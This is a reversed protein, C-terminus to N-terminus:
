SCLVAGSRILAWYVPKWQVQISLHTSRWPTQSSLEMKSLCGWSHPIPFPSIFSLVKSALELCIYGACQHTSTPLPYFSIESFQKGWHCNYKSIKGSAGLKPTEMKRIQSCCLATMVWTQICCKVHMNEYLSSWRRYVKLVDSESLLSLLFKYVWLGTSRFDGCVTGRGKRRPKRRKGFCLWRSFLIHCLLNRRWGNEGILLVHCLFFETVTLEVALEILSPGDPTLILWSDIGDSHSFSAPFPYLWNSTM